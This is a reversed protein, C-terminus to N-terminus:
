RAGGIRADAVEGGFVHALMAAAGEMYSAPVDDDPAVQAVAVYAGDKREIVALAGVRADELDGLIKVDDPLREITWTRGSLGARQPIIYPLTNATFKEAADTVIEGQGDDSLLAEVEARRFRRHGGPTRLSSLRGGDAWRTVTKPNVNFANAVEAPTMLDNNM